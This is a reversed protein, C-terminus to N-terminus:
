AAASFARKLASVSLGLAHAAEETSLQEIDRLIVVVRYKPPLRMVGKEVLERREAQSCLREPDDEPSCAPAAQLAQWGTM